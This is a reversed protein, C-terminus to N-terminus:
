LQLIDDAILIDLCLLNTLYVMTSKCWPANYLSLSLYPIERHVSQSDNRPSKLLM